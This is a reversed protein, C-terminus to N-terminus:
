IEREKGAKRVVVPIDIKMQKLRKEQQLTESFLWDRTRKEDEMGQRTVWDEMSVVGDGPHHDAEEQSSVIEGWNVLKAFKRKKEKRKREGPKSPEEVRKRKNEMRRSQTEVESLELEAQRDDELGTDVEEVRSIDIGEEPVKKLKEQKEREKGARWGEM